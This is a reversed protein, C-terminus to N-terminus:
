LNRYKELARELGNITNIKLLNNDIEIIPLSMESCEKTIRRLVMFNNTIDIEEFPIDKDKLYSKMIKCNVCTPTSYIKIGLM